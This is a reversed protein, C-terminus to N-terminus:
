EGAPTAAPAATTVVMVVTAGKLLATAQAMTIATTQATLHATSLATPLHDTLLVTIEKTAMAITVTSLRRVCTVGTTPAITAAMDIVATAMTMAMSPAETQTAMATLLAVTVTLSDMAAEAQTAEGDGTLPIDVLAKTYMETLASTAQSQTVM